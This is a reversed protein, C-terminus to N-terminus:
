LSESKCGYNKFNKSQRAKITFNTYVKWVVAGGAYAVVDLLDAHFRSQYAPLILEFLLGVYLVSFAIQYKNLSFHQSVVIRMAFTTLELVIPLCLFDLLYNDLITIGSFNFIYRKSAAIGLTVWFWIGPLEAFMGIRARRLNVM